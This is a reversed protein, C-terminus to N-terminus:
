FEKAVGLPRGFLEANRTLMQMIQNPFVPEAGPFPGSASFFGLFCFVVLFFDSHDVLLRLMFHQRVGRMVLLGSLIEYLTKLHM